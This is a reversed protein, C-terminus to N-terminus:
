VTCNPSPKKTNRKKFYQKNRKKKKWNKNRKKIMKILFKKLRNHKEM